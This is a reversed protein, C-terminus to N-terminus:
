KSSPQQPGQEGHSQLALPPGTQLRPLQLLPLMLKQYLQPWISDSKHVAKAKLVILKVTTQATRIAIDVMGEQLHSTRRSNASVHVKM